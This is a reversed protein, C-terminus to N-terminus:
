LKHVALKVAKERLELSKVESGYLERAEKWAEKLSDAYILSTYVSCFGSSDFPMYGNTIRDHTHIYDMSVEKKFTQQKMVLIYACFTYVALGLYLAYIMFDSFGPM